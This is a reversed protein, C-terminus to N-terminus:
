RAAPCTAPRAAPFAPLPADGPDTWRLLEPPVNEDSIGVWQQNWSVMVVDPPPAIVPQPGRPLADAIAVWAPLAARGGTEGHGLTTREDSGIWVGITHTPTFGVFWADAYNSTTGTKGGRDAGEKKARVGTGFQVVGRMMDTVQWATSPRMVLTGEGGPLTADVGPLSIPGGEVAVEGGWVDRLRTVFVPPLARGMRPFTSVAVTHELPTIESSGLAITLDDRIHSQIGARHALDVVADAGARMLLRVAVTNVSAAFANRMPLNGRYGGGYNQPSWGGLQLPADLVTSIQTLGGEIAAAYVYPKFSSGPQRRAQSARDFGEIEVTRGGVISVIHGTATEVVVAAGQVWDEDPLEVVGSVISKASPTLLSRLCVRYVDGWRVVAQLPEAAVLPDRNRIRRGLSAADWAFVYPGAQVKTEGLAMAPFCAGIAPLQAVGDRQALGDAADLFAPVESPKLRVTRGPHGQRAQVADAAALVAREAVAQLDPDYPTSIQLGAEFPVVDGLLRRVERRVETAYATGMPATQVDVRPPPRIPERKFQQADLPDVFREEVMADLVIRRREAAAEESRRPSYSSPAPILGALLAAQGANLDRSSVGFYDQAAAEVGYNGSGLFIFNLYLELITMKDMRQELRWALLAERAKRVYSREAGVVTNKVLQQTLTSGGEKIDGARLNVVMARAIGLFDIGGHDFFRRDEAAVVAQWMAPPMETIPMWERRFLAFEDFVDGHVDLSRCVTPPRWTDLKSLEADLSPLLESTYRHYLGPLLIALVFLLLVTRATRMM